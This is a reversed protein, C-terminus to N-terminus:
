QCARFDACERGRSGCRHRHGDAIAVGDASLPEPELLVAAHELREAVVGGAIAASTRISGGPARCAFFRFGHRGPEREAAHGTTRRVIGVRGIRQERYVGHGHCGHRRDRQLAHVSRHGAM